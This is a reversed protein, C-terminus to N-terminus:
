TAALLDVDARFIRLNDVDQCSFMQEVTCNVVVFSINIDMKLVAYLCPRWM